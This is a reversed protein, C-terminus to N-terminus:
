VISEEDAETSNNDETLNNEQVVEQVETADQIEEAVNDQNDVGKLKDIKERMEAIKEEQKELREKKSKKYEEVIIKKADQKLKDSVKERKVIEIAQKSTEQDYADEIDTETTLTGEEIAKNLAAIAKYEAEQKINELLRKHKKTIADESTSYLRYFGAELAQQVSMYNKDDRNYASYLLEAIENSNLISANVSCMSLGSMISQVRTFLESYCIDLLEEKNFNSANSLESKYYSVLVYFSRQLMSKNLALKEVYRVIDQGYELVNLISNRKDEVDQIEEDTSELSNLVTNYEGNIDDYEEYISKMNEKYSAINSKLNVSQAQVYLQVPFKLTNLFTMFGEEVALQEVESMLNYNIGKCKIVATYKEGKQQIIMNDQIKEFEMFNFVDEKAVNANPNKKYNSEEKTSKNTNKVNNTGVAPKGKQNELKSKSILFAIGVILIVVGFVIMIIVDYSLNM